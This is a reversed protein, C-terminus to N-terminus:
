FPIRDALSAEDALQESERGLRSELKVLEYWASDRWDSSRLSVRAAEYTDRRVGGSRMVSTKHRRAPTGALRLPASIWQLKAVSGFLTFSSM